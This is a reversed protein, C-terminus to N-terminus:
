GANELSEHYERVARGFSRGFEYSSKLEEEKPTFNVELGPEFTKLKMSRLIEYAKAVAGKSWGYSGFAAVIRSTPRLGSLYHLFEAVSPFLSNNLTPSGVICGRVKWFEKVAHSIPSSRLKIVKVFIGEDMIGRVIPFLIKETSHWMTDYVILVGLSAKGSAMRVYADVVKKPNKRWIIGHDPAIIEIELNMRKIEEVKSLILNGFPMLINAYYDCIADDMEAESYVEVFEDDFRVSSAFHFGFADQSILTKLEPIYTMMSDPWHLMPTEIFLLSYKGTKVIEGSKVTKIRGEDIRFMKLIGQKGRETAFIKLQPMERLFDELGGVHDPEIHNIVLNRIRQFEVIDRINKLSEWSFEKHVTDFITVEEDLLLYNNYTTGNRVHYGHFDRVAWDIAGVWFLDDRVKIPKM